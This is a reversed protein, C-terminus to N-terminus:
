KKYIDILKELSKVKDSLNKMTRAIDISLTAIDANQSYRLPKISRNYANLHKRIDTLEYTYEVESKSTGTVPDIETNKLNFGKDDTEEPETEEPKQIYVKSKSPPTEYGKPKEVYAEKLIDILKIM